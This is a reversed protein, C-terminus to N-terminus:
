ESTKRINGWYRWVIGPNYRWIRWSWQRVYDREGNM